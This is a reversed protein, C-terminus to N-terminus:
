GEQIAQKRAESLLDFYADLVSRVEDRDMDLFESIVKATAEIQKADPLQRSLCGLRFVRIAKDMKSM